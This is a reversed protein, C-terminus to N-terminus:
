DDWGEAAIIDHWRQSKCAECICDRTHPLFDAGYGVGGASGNGVGAEQAEVPQDEAQKGNSDSSSAAGNDQAGTGRNAVTFGGPQRNPNNGYPDAHHHITNQGYHWNGYYNGGDYGESWGGAIVRSSSRKVTTKGNSKFVTVKTKHKEPLSEWTPAELDFKDIKGATTLRYLTNEPVSFVETWTVDIANCSRYIANLAASTTSAFVYGWDVGVVKLEGTERWLWLVDPRRGQVMACAISGLACKTAEQIGHEVTKTEGHRYFKEILRLYTETDVEADKKLSYDTVLDDENILWGNHVMCLGTLKSYVPHNNSNKAPTGQTAFRTHLIMARPMDEAPQTSLLHGDIKIFDTAEVPQKAMHVFKDGANVYAYGTADRGRNEIGLLLQRALEQLSSVRVRKPKTVIYGAIGCM